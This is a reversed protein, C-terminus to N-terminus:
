LLHVHQHCWRDRRGGVEERFLLAVPFDPCAAIYRYALIHSPLFSSLLYHSVKLFKSFSQDHDYADRSMPELFLVLPPLYLCCVATLEM